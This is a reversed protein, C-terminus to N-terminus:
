KNFISMKLSFYNVMIVLHKENIKRIRLLQMVSHMMRCSVTLQNMIVEACTVATNEINM